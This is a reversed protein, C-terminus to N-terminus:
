PILLMIVKIATDFNIIKGNGNGSIDVAAQEFVEILREVNKETIFRAFNTSFSQEEPNLYTLEPIRFRFMFNERMMRIAYRYFAIENERGEDTLDMAWKRLEGVKRQYALRMLQKFRELARRSFESEKFTQEAKLMSGLSLHAIAAAQDPAMGHRRQMETAVINDPLRRCAIRQLRSYITPLIDRPRDSVLVFVTDAFPEEIIKLLKNATELQMLEPLWWIVVKYRSTVATLSLRRLLEISEAVYTTPRANKKGFVTAWKQFDVYIDENLFEHWEEAFQESIPANTMKDTKAVPYIFSTDVHNFSEHQRCAPCKGCPEGNPTRSQCHLYQVFARALSLKGIGEPGELLLAHPLRDTDAMQRLRVKADDHGPIDSFKM